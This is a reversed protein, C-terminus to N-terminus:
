QLPHLWRFRTARAKEGAQRRTGKVVAAIAGKQGLHRLIRWAQMDLVGLRTGLQVASLFFEPPPTTPDEEYAALSRCIRFGAAQEHTSLSQYIAAEGPGLNKKAYDNLCGTLASDAERMWQEHPYDAFLEPHERHFLDAFTLVFRPHVVCFTGAVLEVLAANRLGRPPAGLKRRVHQDYFPLLAPFDRFLESTNHLICFASASDAPLSPSSNRPPARGTEMLRAQPPPATSLSFPVADANFRLDPDFSVFCLRCPDSCKPDISIGYTKALYDTVAGFAARHRDLDSPIRAAAKVGNAGPSLWAALIHPDSGLRDRITAAESEGVGDVDIQLLGTHAAIDAAKHGGTATTASLMFCSLRLKAAEYAESQYPM